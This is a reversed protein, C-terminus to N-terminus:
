KGVDVIEKDLYLWKDMKRWITEREKDWKERQCETCKECVGLSNWDIDRLEDLNGLPDVFGCDYIGTDHVQTPWERGFVEQCTPRAQKGSTRSAQGGCVDQPPLAFKVWRKHIKEVLRIGLQIDAYAMNTEPTNEDTVTVELASSTEARVYESEEDSTDVGDHFSMDLEKLGVLHYFATKLLGPVNCERALCIREKAHSEAVDLGYNFDDLELPYQSTLEEIAWSRVEPFQFLTAIRLIRSVNTFDFPRSERSPRNKIAILHNLQSLPVTTPVVGVKRM